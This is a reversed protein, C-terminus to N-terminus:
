PILKIQKIVELNTKQDFTSFLCFFLSKNEDFWIYDYDDAGLRHYEVITHGDVVIEEQTMTQGLDPVSIAVGSHYIGYSFGLVDEEGYLFSIDYQRRRDDEPEEIVRGGAPAWGLRFRPFSSTETVDKFNYLYDGERRTIFWEAVKARVSPTFLVLSALMVFAMMAAFAIRFSSHQKRSSKLHKEVSATSKKQFRLTPEISQNRENIDDAEKVWEQLIIGTVRNIKKRDFMKEMEEIEEMAKYGNLVTRIPETACETRKKEVGEVIYVNSFLM